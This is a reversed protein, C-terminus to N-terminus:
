SNTSCRMSSDRKMGITEHRDDRETIPMIVFCVPATDDNNSGAVVFSPSGNSGQIWPQKDAADTASSVFDSGIGVFRANEEFLEVFEDQIVPDLGFEQELTNTRFREDPLKSGGYHEVVRRFIDISLFTQRLTEIEATSTQPYVASRGLDTLAIEASDRSGTMLGFDRSAAAVYFFRNTKPKMDLSAAVDTPSWANGGNNAKLSRPVALAQELPRRPFPRDTRGSPRDTRGSTAMECSYLLLRYMM